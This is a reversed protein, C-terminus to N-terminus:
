FFSNPKTPHFLNLYKQTDIGQIFLFLTIIGVSLLLNHIIVKQIMIEDHLKIDASTLVVTTINLYWNGTHYAM